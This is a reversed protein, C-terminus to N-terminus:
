ALHERSLLERLCCPVVSLAVEEALTPKPRDVTPSQPVVSPHCHLLEARIAHLGCLGEPLLDVDEGTDAVRVYDQEKAGARLIAAKNVLQHLAAAKLVGEALLVQVHRGELPLVSDPDGSFHGCRQKHEVLGLWLWDKVPIELWGIHQQVGVQSCLQRVDAERAEGRLEVGAVDCVDLVGRRHPGQVVKVGLVQVAASKRRGAVREGKSHRHQLQQCSPLRSARVPTGEVVPHSGQASGAHYVIGDVVRGDALAQPRQLIGLAESLKRNLAAHEAPGAARREHVNHVGKLFKSGTSVGLRLSGGGQLLSHHSSLHCMVDWRDHEEARDGLIHHIVRHHRSVAERVLATGNLLPKGRAVLGAGHAVRRQRVCLQRGVEHHARGDLLPHLADLAGVFLLLLLM